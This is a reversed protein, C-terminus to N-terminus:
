IYFFNFKVKVFLDRKTYKSDLFDPLLLRIFDFCTNDFVLESSKSFIEKTKQELRQFKKQEKTQEKNQIMLNEQQIEMEHEEKDMSVTEKEAVDEKSVIKVQKGKGPKRINKFNQISTDLKVDEEQETVVIEDRETDEVTQTFNSKKKPIPKANGFRPTPNNVPTSQKSNRETKEPKLNSGLKSVNVLLNTAKKINSTTTSVGGAQNPQQKFTDKFVGQPKPSKRRALNKLFENRNKEMQYADNEKISASKNEYSSDRSNLIDVSTISESLKRLGKNQTTEQPKFKLNDGGESRIIKQKGDKGFATTINTNGSEQELAKDKGFSLFNTYKKNFEPSNLHSQPMKEVTQKQELSFKVSKTSKQKHHDFDETKQIKIFNKDEKKVNAIDKINKDDLNSVQLSQKRLQRSEDGSKLDDNLFSISGIKSQKNLNTKCISRMSQIPTVTTFVKLRPNRFPFELLRQRLQERRFTNYEQLNERYLKETTDDIPAQTISAGYTMKTRVAEKAREIWRYIGDEVDAPRLNFLEYVNLEKMQGDSTFNDRHNKTQTARSINGNDEEVNDSITLLKNKKQRSSFGASILTLFSVSNTRETKKQSQPKNFAKVMNAMFSEKTITERAMIQDMLGASKKIPKKFKQKMKNLSKRLMDTGLASNDGGNDDGDNGDGNGDGKKKKNKKNKGGQFLTLATQIQSENLCVSFMYNILKRYYLVERVPLVLILLLITIGKSFGGIFAVLKTLTQFNKTIVIKSVLDKTLSIELMQEEEKNIAVIDIDTRLYM